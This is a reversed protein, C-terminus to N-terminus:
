SYRGVLDLIGKVPIVVWDPRNNMEYGLEYVAKELLYADLLIELEEISGPILAPQVASFYGSLFCGSVWGYWAQAWRNLMEVDEARVVVGAEGKTLPSFAAYHFSRIMGAVDRLPNRKLRRESLPHLPEGEFDTIVFDKGTFLVQGLHYDGHCRIRVAEIKKEILRRFRQLLREELQVVREAGPRVAEPLRSHQAHVSQLVRGTLNRMSQYLSRQYFVTFPEAEFDRDDGDSALVNHLEATRQGLLRADELFAGILDRALNSPERASLDLLGRTSTDVAPPEDAQAAAREYFPGLQDITYEWADGENNAYSHLVGVTATQGDVSFEIAGAVSPAHPFGHATLFRGVELDLGTGEELKRYLKLVFRDGFAISTNSQEARLVRPQVGEYGLERLLPLPTARLEGETGRMRQRGAMDQLLACSFDPDFSADIVLDDQEPGRLQFIPDAGLRSAREANLRILPLVYNEPEGEAYEVRLVCIAADRGPVAVNILDFIDVDRIARTKSRFWRQKVVYRALFRELSGRAAGTRLEDLSRARITYHSEPVDVKTSARKRAHQLEFWYFAHPGLTLFLPRDGIEPFDIRGFLETPISGKFRALDLDVYQVLRSLNVVVLITEDEYERLFALVKRNDPYLFEITGRGFAQYRKRLAIIRKMWWLLSNPNAQQAEVNVTGFHYEPDIIAPLYLKQPNADSFGANRDGSWQMPTRVGNRDGLYINDGMGIEDGYYLVPTGPLSFLLCNMLEITRRDNGLLPALRRRIGLNIRARLDSAYSRYMYDREEDTVMELTLEDHNRLFIAWQCNDPIPPTQKLIDIIPFRDEMRIAMFLRPMVPFHFAMHNEEGDGFYPVTEEPWQNAEALLMRADFKHDVHRRLKKLFKHTAELNECNTGEMEYLYPIADLRMGDVGMKMWFDMVRFIAKHVNPNEFNLDPQHSFFRHWYYQRAVPDWSWNSSEFDKFIIRADRYKDPTDNWVYFDRLSSGPPAKRARQFWPHQDSTHNIVLETIVRLGRRHAEAMFERFDRTHGYAPHVSTYDAIDYGDDRWPSPYFPLIWLATVGLDELYDLRSTLGKFDGMGDANSDQFARVHLEYIIADKYWLPDPKVDDEFM